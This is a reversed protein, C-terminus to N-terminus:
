FANQIMHYIEFFSAITFIFHLVVNLSLGKSRYKNVSCAKVIFSIIAFLGYIHWTFLDIFFVVDAFLSLTGQMNLWELVLLGNLLFYVVVVGLSIVSFRKFGSETKM